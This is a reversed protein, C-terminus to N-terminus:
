RPTPSPRPGHDARRGHHDHTWRGRGAQDRAGPHLACAHSGPHPTRGDPPGRDPITRRDFYGSPAAGGGGRTRSLAPRDPSPTRTRCVPRDRAREPLHTPRARDHGGPGCPCASPPLPRDTAPPPPRRRTRGAPRPGPRRTSRSPGPRARPSDPPRFSPRPTTSVTSGRDGADGSRAPPRATTPDAARAYSTPTTRSPTACAAAWPARPPPYVFGCWDRPDADSRTPYVATYGVRPGSPMRPAPEGAAWTTTPTTGPRTTTPADPPHHILPSPRRAGARYTEATSYYTPDAEVATAVGDRATRSPGTPPNSGRTGRTRTIRRRPASSTSCSHHPPPDRLRPVM